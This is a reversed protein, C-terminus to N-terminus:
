MMHWKKLNFTATHFKQAALKSVLLREKVKSGGSSSWYWLWNWQFIMCWTYKLAMEETDLYTWDSQSRGMLLPQLTNVFTKNHFISRLIQNKSTAFRVASVGNDSTHHQLSKNGVTLKFFLRANLDWWLIKTYKSFYNRICVTRQTVVKLRIQLM